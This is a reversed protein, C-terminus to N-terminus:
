SPNETAVNFTKKQNAAGSNNTCKPDKRLGVALKFGQGM